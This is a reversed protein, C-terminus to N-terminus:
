DKDVPNSVADPLLSRLVATKRDLEEWEEQEDSTPLIGGGAFINYVWDDHGRRSAAHACRLNVYAHIDDPSDCIGVMGAYCGRKHSEYVDILHLAMEKPYGCVAPTPNLRDLIEMPPIDTLEADFTTCLHEVGNTGLTSTPHVTVEPSVETLINRIYSVVYDHEALNKESWPEDTWRTGALAMTHFIRRESRRDTAPVSLSEGLVEPTSGLWIGHEPTYCLYGFNGPELPLYREALETPSVSSSVAQVRSIVAKANGEKRLLKRIRRISSLYAARPTSTLRPLEFTESVPIDDLHRSYELLADADLDDDIWAVDSPGGDYTGIFFRRGDYVERTEGPFMAHFRWVEERPMRYLVFPIGKALAVEAAQRIKEDPLNM